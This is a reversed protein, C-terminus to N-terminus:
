GGRFLSFVTRLLIKVDLWLSWNEIYYNDFRAREAISTDGRLGNVQAWGTLGCPVRHRAVYRPFLREFQAVFHPREPRPGVLSMDGRLINVLQPLEDMSSRRLLRGLRDLEADDAISWRTASEEDSSPKMSRFKLLEFTRGDLGIRVQRFIVGPGHAVRLAAAIGLMPLAMVALALGSVAVDLARKLRWRLTRYAARRLRVLPIGLLEEMQSGQASLEFLRPVFFIECELRDCTRIIDVVDAERSQTFAIVVHEISARHIVEALAEVDGVVPVPLEDASMMPRSDLFGIPALGFEPHDQAVRVIQTGVRGAGIVLTRHAVVGAARLARLVSYAVGRFTVVTALVLATTAISAQLPLADSWPSTLVLGIASAAIVRGGLVPLDSLLSFTLRKRYAGTSSLLAVTLGAWVLEGVLSRSSRVAFVAGLAGLDGALLVAPVALRRLHPAVGAAARTRRSPQAAVELRMAYDMDVLRDARVEISQAM